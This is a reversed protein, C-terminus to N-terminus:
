GAPSASPPAGRGRGDTPSGASKLTSYASPRSHADQLMWGSDRIPWLMPSYTAAHRAPTKLRSSASASTVSRPRSNSSSGGPPMTLTARGSCSTRGRSPACRDSAATFAGACHTTAPSAAATSARTASRAARPTSCRRMWMSTAACECRMSEMRGANADQTPRSFSLGGFNGTTDPTVPVQSVASSAVLGAYQTFCRLCGTRKPWPTRVSSSSGDRTRRSTPGPRM